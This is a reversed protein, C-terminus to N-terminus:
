GTAVGSRASGSYGRHTPQAAVSDALSRLLTALGVRWAPLGRQGRALRALREQEALRLADRRREEGLREGTYLSYNM